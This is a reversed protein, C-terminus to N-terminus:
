DTQLKPQDLILVQIDKPGYLISYEPASKLKEAFRDASKTLASTLAKKAFTDENKIDTTQGLINTSRDITSDTYGAAAASLLEAGFFISENSVYKGNLGLVGSEDMADADLTYIDKNRPDRFKKFHIQIRKSNKELSAEGVLVSDKLPGSTVVARVPSRSEQFAFVSELLTAQILDGTLLQRFRIGSKNTPLIIPSEEISVSKRNLQYEPPLNGNSNINASNPMVKKTLIKKEEMRQPVPEKKFLNTRSQALTINCLLIIFLSLRM